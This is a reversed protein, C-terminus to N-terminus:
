IEKDLNVEDFLLTVEDSPAKTCLSVIIGALLSLIFGPIIEYLNSNVILSNFGYYELNFLLMWVISVIFGVIISLTKKNKM